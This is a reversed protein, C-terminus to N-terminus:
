VGYSACYGCGISLVIMIVIESCANCFGLVYKSSPKKYIENSGGGNIIRRFEKNTVILNYLQANIQADTIVTQLVLQVSDQNFNKLHIKIFRM